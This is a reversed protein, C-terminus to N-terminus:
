AGTDDGRGWSAFEWAAFGLASAPMARAMERLGVFEGKTAVAHSLAAQVSGAIGGSTLVAAVTHLPVGRGKEASDQAVVAPAPLLLRKSFEFTGFLGAMEIGDSAMVRPASAKFQKWAERPGGAVGATLSAAAAASCAGHVVGAGTGAVLPSAERRWSGEDSRGGTTDLRMLFSEYSAFLITGLVASSAIPPVVRRAIGSLGVAGYESRLQQWRTAHEKAGPTSDAVATFADFASSTRELRSALQASPLRPLRMTGSARLGISRLMAKQANLVSQALSRAGGAAADDAWSTSPQPEFGDSRGRHSACQECFPPPQAPPLLTLM